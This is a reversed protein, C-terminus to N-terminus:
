DGHTSCTGLHAKDSLSVNDGKLLAMRFAGLWLRQPFYFCCSNSQQCLLLFLPFVLTQPGGVM